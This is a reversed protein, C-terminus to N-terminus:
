GFGRSRRGIARRSAGLVRDVYRGRLRRRSFQTVAFRCSRPRGPRVRRVARLVGRLRHEGARLLVLVRLEWRALRRRVRVPRVLVPLRRRVALASGVALVSVVALAVVRVSREVQLAVRMRRHVVRRRLGLLGVDADPCLFALRQALARVPVSHRRVMVEAVRLLEGVVTSACHPMVVLALARVLVPERVLPEPEQEPLLQEAGLVLERVQRVALELSVPPM